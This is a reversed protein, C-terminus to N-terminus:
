RKRLLYVGERLSSLGRERFRPNADLIDESHIKSVVFSGGYLRRVEEEAVSFPPGNMQGEPYEMTILLIPTGPALLSAMQVAYNDRLPPPLAVLSARDYVAHTPGLLSPTLRFFDGCLLVIEGCQWQEFCDVSRRQAQLANEAFFASVAVSSVEVGVIKHGQSALWLIDRSKGCLPVFVNAPTTLGVEHWYKQLHPNFTEQHFGIENRQWRELWFSAEM